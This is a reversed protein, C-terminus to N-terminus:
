DLVMQMLLEITKCVLDARAKTWLLLYIKFDPLIIKSSSFVVRCLRTLGRELPSSKGGDWAGASPISIDQPAEDYRLLAKRTM